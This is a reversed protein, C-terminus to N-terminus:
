EESKPQEFEDFRLKAINLSIAKMSECAKNIVDQKEEIIKNWYGVAHTTAVRKDTFYVTENHAFTFESVKKFAEYRAFNGGRKGKTSESKFHISENIKYVSGEKNAIKEIASIQEEEIKGNYSRFIIDDIKVDKARKYENM